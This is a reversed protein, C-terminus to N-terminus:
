QKTNCKNRRKLEIFVLNLYITNGYKFCPLQHQVNRARLLPINTTNPVADNTDISSVVRCPMADLSEVRSLEARAKLFTSYSKNLVGPAQLLLLSVVQCLMWNRRWRIGYRVTPMYMSYYDIVDSPSPIIYYHPVTHLVV